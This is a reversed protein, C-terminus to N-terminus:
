FDELRSKLVFVRIASSLNVNADDSIRHVDIQTVLISLSIGRSQAIAKLQDWFINELTISTQHGSIVISHKRLINDHGSL